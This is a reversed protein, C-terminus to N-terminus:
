DTKRRRMFFLGLGLLGIVGTIPRDGTRAYPTPPLAAPIAADLTGATDLPLSSVIRGKADIVASVGTNAARVFPLGQEIARLRAQALHQYPGALSGFWADNTVQLIWDPRGPAARLDQPFVAEYCILPLVRGLPGLDLTAAGPGPTYGDGERAALGHIGFRAALDGFPIYEGFPVLHHKDYLQTVQGAGNIVALSNFYRGNEGRQVGIAVPRGGAADAIMALPEDADELLWVLATEPWVILDPPTGSTAATQDLQQRFQQPILMPDWKLHQPINPQILRVTISPNRAVVPESLRWFGAGWLAALLAVATVVGRRGLCLPLAALLTTLLTLGVPGVFAALQAVPTDTWVHGLLAWPFGTLIYSRLLETGAFTVALALPRLRGQGLWVGVGAALAWFLAMGGAMLVLAFPAMWGQRAADVMFPEVIWFLSAAFYATGGAWGLWAGRGTGDARALCFFLWTLAPLAMWWLGLPAQGAAVLAGAAAPAIFQGFEPRASM